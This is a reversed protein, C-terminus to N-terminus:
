FAHKETNMTKYEDRMLVINNIAHINREEISIKSKRTSSKKMIIIFYLLILNWQVTWM